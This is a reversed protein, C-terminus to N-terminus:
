DNQEASVSSLALVILEFVVDVCQCIQTHLKGALVKNEVDRGGLEEWACYPSGPTKSPALVHHFLATPLRGLERRLVFALPTRQAESARAGQAPRGGPAGLGRM